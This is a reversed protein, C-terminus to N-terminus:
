ILYGFVNILLWRGDRDTTLSCNYEINEVNNPKGKEPLLEAPGRIQASGDRLHNTSEENLDPTFQPNLPGKKMRLWRIVEDAGIVSDARYVMKWIVNPHLLDRMGEYDGVNFLDRLRLFTQQLDKQDFVPMTGERRRKSGDLSLSNLTDAAVTFLCCGLPTGIVVARCEHWWVLLSLEHVEGAYQPARV